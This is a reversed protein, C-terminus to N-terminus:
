SESGSDAEGFGVLGRGKKKVRGKEVLDALAADLVGNIFSGSRSTSFRKAIEIIENITVKPPIDPFYLIEVVAIWLLTKDVVAIRELDWNTTHREIIRTAEDRHDMCQTVLKEAFRLIGPDDSLKPRVITAIAHEASGGGLQVAYLAQLVRERAHRRKSM